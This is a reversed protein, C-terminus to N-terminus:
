SAIVDTPQHTQAEPSHRLLPSLLIQPQETSQGKRPQQSEWCTYGSPGQIVKTSQTCQWHQLASPATVTCPATSVATRAGPLGKGMENALKRWGLHWLTSASIRPEPPPCYLNWVHAQEKYSLSLHGRKEDIRCILMTHRSRALRQELSTTFLLPVTHLWAKTSCYQPRVEDKLHLDYYIYRRLNQHPTHSSTCLFRAECLAQSVAM